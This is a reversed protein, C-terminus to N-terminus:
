TRDDCVGVELRNGRRRGARGGRSEDRLVTVRTGIERIEELKHSIFLVAQGAEALRGGSPPLAEPGQSSGLAATPEDM